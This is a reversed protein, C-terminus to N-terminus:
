SAERIATSGSSNFAADGPAVMKPRAQGQAGQQARGTAAGTLKWDGDEWQAGALSHTYSGKEKATEGNKQVVRSLLWLSVEGSSAKIVEYGVVTSHVYAGPPLPQGARVGMERALSRDTDGAALEIQEANEDSRDAKGVYSYYIRLQEDVSTKGSGVPSSSAAALMAAAGETTHAFGVESGYKDTRAGRPLAAWREPETWDEPASYGPSPTASGSGAPRGDKGKAFDDGDGSVMAYGTLLVVAAALGGAAWKAKVGWAGRTRSM